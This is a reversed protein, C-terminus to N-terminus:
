ESHPSLSLGREPSIGGPKGWQTAMNQSRMANEVFKGMNNRAMNAKESGM